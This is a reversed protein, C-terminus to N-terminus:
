VRGSVNLTGSVNVNGIVVLKESPNLTGIGVNGSSGNVFFLINTNDDQIRFTKAALTIQSILILIILIFFLKVSLINKYELKEKQSARKESNM